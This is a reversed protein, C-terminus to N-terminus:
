LRNQDIKVCKGEWLIANLIINKANIIWKIIAMVLLEIKYIFYTFKFSISLFENEADLKIYKSIKQTKKNFINLIIKQHKTKSDMFTVDIEIKYKYM